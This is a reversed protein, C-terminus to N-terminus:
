VLKIIVDPAINEGRVVDGSLRELKQACDAYARPEVYNHRKGARPSHWWTLLDHLCEAQHPRRPGSERLGHRNVPALLKGPMEQTGHYLVADLFAVSRQLRGPVDSDAFPSSCDPLADKALDHEVVLDLAELIHQASGRDDALDLVLHGVM